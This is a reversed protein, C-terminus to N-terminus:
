KIDSIENKKKKIKSETTEMEKKTDENLSDTLKDEDDQNM